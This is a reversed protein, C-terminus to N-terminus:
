NSRIPYLSINAYEPNFIIATSLVSATNMWKKILGVLLFRVLILIFDYKKLIIEIFLYILSLMLVRFTCRIFNVSDFILSLTLSVTYAIISSSYVIMFSWFIQYLQSDNMQIHVARLDSVIQDQSLIRSKLNRIDLLIMVVSLIFITYKIFLSEVKIQYFRQQSIQNIQNFALRNLNRIRGDNVSIYNFTNLIMFLDSCSNQHSHNFEQDILKFNNSVNDEESWCGLSIEKTPHKVVIIQDLRPNTLLNNKQHTERNVKQHTDIITSITNQPEQAHEQDAVLLPLNENDHDDLENSQPIYDRAEEINVRREVEDFQEAAEDNRKM